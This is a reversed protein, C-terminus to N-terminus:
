GKRQKEMLKLVKYYTGEANSVSLMFGERGDLFAGKLLYTRLFAWLGKFIAKSLSGQKGESALRDAGLSSYSNVKHLVEELNIFAEHELHHTLRGITPEKVEVREHVPVLTFSGSDRRFLRLCYDPFWGGHRMKRGCYSSLRPVEYANFVADPTELIQRIEAALAATVWEDADISFVWDATAHDLARQKQLGFGPWDTVHVHPTYRQCIAVTDDTSGSDLVIIEDAFSVSDLCRGVHQAENKTILIVSLTTM